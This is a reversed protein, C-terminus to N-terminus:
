TRGDSYTFPTLKVGHNSHSQANLELELYELLPAAEVIYTAEDNAAVVMGLWSGGKSEIAWSGSDGGESFTRHGLPLTLLGFLYTRTNPRIKLHPFRVSKGYVAAPLIPVPEYVFGSCGKHLGNLKKVITGDDMCARVIDNTACSLALKPVPSPLQFCHASVPLLAVDPIDRKNSDPFSLLAVSKCGPALVHACTMKYTENAEVLGGVSGPEGNAEECKALLRPFSKPAFEVGIAFWDRIPALVRMYVQPAETEIIAKWPFLGKRELSKDCHLRILPDEVAFALPINSWPASRAQRQFIVIADVLREILLREDARMQWRLRAMQASAEERYDALFRRELGDMQPPIELFERRLVGDPGAEALAETVRRRRESARAVALEISGSSLTPQQQQPPAPTIWAGFIRIAAETLWRKLGEFPGEPRFLPPDQTAL